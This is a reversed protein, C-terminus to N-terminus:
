SLAAARRNQLELGLLSGNEGFGGVMNLQVAYQGRGDSLNHLVNRSTVAGVYMCTDVQAWSRRKRAQCDLIAAEIHLAPPDLGQPAAM